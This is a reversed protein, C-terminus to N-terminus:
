SCTAQEEGLSAKKAALKKYKRVSIAAIYVELLIVLASLEMFFSIYMELFSREEEKMMQIFVSIVSFVEFLIEWVAFVLYIRKIRKEHNRGEAMSCLGVILRVIVDGALLASLVIILVNMDVGTGELEKLDTSTFLPVGLVAQALVKFVSWFGFLIVGMGLISLTHSDRRFRISEPANKLITKESISENVM